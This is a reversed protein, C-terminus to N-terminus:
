AFMYVVHSILIYCTGLNKATVRFHGTALQELNVISGTRSDRVKLKNQSVLTKIENATLQRGSPDKVFAGITYQNGLAMIYNATDLMISGKTAVAAQVSPASVALASTGTGLLLMAALATAVIQKKKKLLNM